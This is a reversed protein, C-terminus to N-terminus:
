AYSADLGAGNEALWALARANEALTADWVDLMREIRGDRFQWFGHAAVAIAGKDASTYRTWAIASVTDPEMVRIGVPEHQRAAFRRDFNRVSKAFGAIVADRGRLHCAFPIGSVRYEADETLMPALPTWDDTEYATNFADLFARWPTLLDSM